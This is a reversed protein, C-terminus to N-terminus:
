GLDEDEEEDDEDLHDIAKLLNQLTRELQSKPPPGVLMEGKYKTVLLEKMVEHLKQGGPRQGLIMMNTIPNAAMTIKHMGAKNGEPHCKKVQFHHMIEAMGKPGLAKAEKTLEEFIGKMDESEDTEGAAKIVAMTVFPHPPGKGHQPNGSTM